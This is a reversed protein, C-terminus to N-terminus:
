SRRYGAHTVTPARMHQTTNHVASVYGPDAVVVDVCGTGVNRWRGPLLTPSPRERLAHAVRRRIIDILM